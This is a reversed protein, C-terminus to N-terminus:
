WGSGLTFSAIKDTTTGSQSHGFPFGGFYIPQAVHEGLLTGRSVLEVGARRLEDATRDRAPVVRSRHGNRLLGVAQQSLRVARMTHAAPTTGLLPSQEDRRRTGLSGDFVWDVAGGRKSREKGNGVSQPVSAAKPQHSDM